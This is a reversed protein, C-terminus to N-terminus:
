LPPPPPSAREKIMSIVAAIVAIVVAIISLSLAVDSATTNTAGTTGKAGTAGPIGTAGPVGTAGILNPVAYNVVTAIANSIAGKATINYNAGAISTPIIETGNISGTSDATLDNFKFVATTGSYLTLTVTEGPAFGTGAVQFVNSDNPTAALTAAAQVNAIFTLCLLLTAITAILVTTKM